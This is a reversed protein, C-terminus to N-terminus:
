ELCSVMRGNRSLIKDAYRVMARNPRAIPRDQLTEEWCEPEMGPSHLACRLMFAAATSRSVGARCHVYVLDREFLKDAQQLIFRTSAESPCTYDESERLVPAVFDIDNFVLRLHAKDYPDFGPPPDSGPSGLSLVALNTHRPLFHAAERYSRAIIRPKM